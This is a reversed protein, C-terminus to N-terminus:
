LSKLSYNASSRQVKNKLNSSYLTNLITGLILCVSHWQHPLMITKSLYSIQFTFTKFINQKKQNNKKKANSLVKFGFFKHWEFNDALVKEVGM